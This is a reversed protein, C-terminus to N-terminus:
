HMIQKVLDKTISEEPSEVMKAIVERNKLVFFTPTNSVQYKHSYKETLEKSTNLAILKISGVNTKSLEILKLLRPVERQSDHCWLGFFVVFDLGALKKFNEIDEAEPEYSDYNKKFKEYRSILELSSIEGTRTLSDNLFIDNSQNLEKEQAMSDHGFAVNSGSFLITFAVLIFQSIKRM